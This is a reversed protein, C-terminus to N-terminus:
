RYLSLHEQIMSEISFHTFNDKYQSLQVKLNKNHLIMTMYRSLSKWDKQKILYGNEGSFIVEKIGGTDYSIVPLQMARAEVIACPLGEWLSSLVFTDWQTIIPVIDEQWGHLKIYEGLSKQNIWAEIAPRLIGDGIIELRSQPQQALVENFAHLLDFINKQPKFCSVTGFVFLDKTQQDQKYSPIFRTTEIGARIISHKKAFFPFLRLATKVDMASVCIFHSTIISTILECFYVIFWIIYPQHAHFGFGHITHIRKKVGAFFAAWRGLLGGKTSHTHVIITGYKKKLKRLLLILRVFCRIDTLITFGSFERVLDDLLYVNNKNQTSKLLFGSSSTILSSNNTKDLHNFLTLCVKQAGGLELKTIIYVVHPSHKM